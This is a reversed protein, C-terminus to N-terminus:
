LTVIVTKIEFALFELYLEEKNVPLERPNEELMDTEVAKAIPRNFYLATKVPGGLSEYLRIVLQNKSGNERQAEPVKITEVIVNEGSTWFLSFEEPQAAARLPRGANLPRINGEPDNLEYAGRVVGSEGFSGTFPLLSYTFRHVGIDAEPDPAVPSRLLTLRVRGAEADYGYKCDNLLAIGGGEEELSVWKHACIEFRARDQPLNRHTNRILHGYQVECRLQTTNVATDFEVKLLRQKERWDVLTDFDIRPNDAYFVMDQTLASAEGTAYKRRIRFCVPGSASIETSLLRTEDTIYRTWDSDIDWAEWDVPVDQASIFKNLLGGPETFERDGSIDFLSTIRGSRDFSLEYYPTKLGNGRFTFFSAAPAYEAPALSTWGLPPRRPCFVASEQDDLSIYRQVPYIGESEDESDEEDRNTDACAKFASVGEKLFSV